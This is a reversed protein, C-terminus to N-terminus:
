LPKLNREHSCGEQLPRQCSPRVFVLIRRAPKPHWHFLIGPIMNRLIRINIHNPAESPQPFPHSHPKKEFTQYEGSAPRGDALKRLAKCCEKTRHNPEDDLSYLSRRVKMGSCFACCVAGFWCPVGDFVAIQMLSWSLRSAFERRYRLVSRIPNGTYTNSKLNWGPPWNKCVYFLVAKDQKATNSSVVVM